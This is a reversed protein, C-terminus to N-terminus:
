KEVEEGSKIREDEKFIEDLEQIRSYVEKMWRVRNHGKLKEGRHFDDAWFGVMSRVTTLACSEFGKAEVSWSDHERARKLMRKLFNM